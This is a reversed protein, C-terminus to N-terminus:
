RLLVVYGAKGLFKSVKTDIIYYYTGVPLAIGHLTGDWPKAYGTSNFVAQGYRNFIQVTCNPYGEINNIIWKDNVGDGNPSFANPVEILSEVHVDMTANTTCGGVGKATVTYVINKDTTTFPYAATDSTLLYNPSWTYTLGAGTYVPTIQYPLGSAIFVNPTLAIIPTAYITVPKVVTDACNHNSYAVLKVQYTGEKAFQTPPSQQVSSNGDGFQWLWKVINGPPEVSSSDSFSIPATPCFLKATFGFSAVPKASLSIAKITDAYCGIGTVIHLSVLFTGYSGYQKVPQQVSDSTNDGFLWHWATVSSNPSTSNDVFGIPKKSCSDYHAVWNAAPKEVGQLTNNYLLPALCGGKTQTYIKVHLNLPGLGSYRYIYPLSYRFISDQGNYYISDPVPALVDISNNPSLSPNGSFDWHIESPKGNFNAALSFPENQCITTTDLGPYRNKITIFEQLTDAGFVKITKTATDTCNKDSYTVLQITYDRGVQYQKFPATANLLTTGDGFNWLRSVISGPQEIFSSDTFGLSDLICPLGQYAYRASPKPYRAVTKFTDAFCGLGTISRLNITYQGYNAYQKIPNQVKTLKSGDGFDWFWNVFRDGKVYSSDIISLSDKSCINYQLSIGAVPKPTVVINYTITRKEFCGQPTPIFMTVYVSLIRPGNKAYTYTGPLSYRWFTTDKGAIYASDPIPFVTDVIKNPSLYPNNKFDFILEVPKKKVIMLMKFPITECIKSSNSSSYPNRVFFNSLKGINFAPNFAYSEGQGYGYATAVFALTDISLSHIGPTIPIQAYSWNPNSALKHFFGGKSIADVKFSDVVASNVVVNIYNETINKLAPTFFSVVGIRLDMPCLFVMDPDGKNGLGTNGCAGASTIYQAVVVPATADIETAKDAKFEYYTGNILGNLPVGNVTVATKTGGTFVRYYNMGMGATPVTVFSVGWARSPLAQQFLNDGTGLGNCSILTNSSGSFVALKKCFTDKGAGVTHIYTGTLDNGTVIGGSSGTTKGVLNLVQGKRLFQTFPVHAPHGKTDASPIVQVTTSDETAVVFCYSFSNNEKAAQTYGIAYYEQELIEFPVLLTAASGSADNIHAYAAIPQDSSIHIGGNFVGEGTLRADSPGTKPIVVQDNVGNVSVTQSWGTAPMSITVNAMVSSQLYLRLEQSGGTSNNVTGDNNFMAAHAGYGLWFDMGRSSQVQGKCYNLTGEFFLLTCVLAAHKFFNGKPLFAM